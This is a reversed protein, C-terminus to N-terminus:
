AARQVGHDPRSTLWMALRRLGQSAPSAPSELVAPSTSSGAVSDCSPVSGAHAIPLALFRLSSQAVRDYVDTALEADTAQNTVLSLQAARRKACLLKITAYADMVAIADCTTVVLLQDAIPAFQSSALNAGAGVDLVILDTQAQLSKLQEQLRTLGQPPVDSALEAVWNGPLVMMGAPGARLAENATCRGQMVDLLNHQAHNDLGALTAVNGRQLHSDVLLVRQGQHALTAALNVAVTTAGVGRKAGVTVVLRPPSRHPPKKRETMRFMLNRLGHAQDPM